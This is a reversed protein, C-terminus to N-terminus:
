HPSSIWPTLDLKPIAPSECSVKENIGVPSRMALPQMHEIDDGNDCLIRAWSVKRIEHLQAETFSTPLGANDYFFRDGRKLRIFQDGVICRFTPGLLSGEVPTEAIGAIFPDIDDVHRYLSAFISVVHPPIVDHLDKFDTARPLGCAARLENYPAVGHDRGRQINLAVLDMGFGHNEMQFLHNTLERTVFNDFRQARQSALGRLFEDLKGPTYLHTPTNFNDRLQLVESTRGSRDFLRLMGQVLTHGFRFAVTAFENLINPNVSADYDQSFGRRLPLLSRSQAYRPGVIIPLWENYIIHQIEAVLIRRTEQFLTEGAWHPNLRAMETVLRNHERVWITHIVTLGPQENVRNDGALFCHHNSERDAECAGEEADPDAPLLGTSEQVRLLGRSRDRLEELERESSGYVTSADLFHTIQNMQEVYGLGCGSRPAPMSRVFNMCRRGFRAFFPDNEPILIPFCSPHRFSPDVERGRDNCCEIGSKNGFRFIPSHTLDHDIFQGWQMISLTVDPYPQDVDIVTSVSVARASPLSGDRSSKRPAFFGDAYHPTVARQFPTRAQGWMPNQLNNCSGDINRYFKSKEDCEPGSPCTNEIITDKTNFSVLGFGAQLPTLNFRRVLQNSTRAVLLGDRGIKMAEPSTKFFQLHGFAASRSDSVVINREQLSKELLDREVLDWLGTRAADNIEEKSIPRIKVDVPQQELLRTRDGSSKEEPPCCVGLAGGHLRCTAYPLAKLQDYHPACTVLPVCPVSSSSCGEATEPAYPTYRPSPETM